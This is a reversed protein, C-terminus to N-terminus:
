DPPPAINMAPKNTTLVLKKDLSMGSQSGYEDTATCVTKETCGKMFENAVDIRFEGTHGIKKAFAKAQDVTMGRMKEFEDRHVIGAMRGDSKIHVQVATYGLKVSKGPEPDQCDVTGNAAAPNDECSIRGSSDVEHKFGANKIAAEAEEKTKGTLDPMTVMTNPDADAGDLSSGGGSPGGVTTTGSKLPCAALALVVFLTTFRTM